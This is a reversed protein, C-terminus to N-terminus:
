DDLIIIECDFPKKLYIESYSRFIKITKLGAPLNTHKLTMNENFVNIFLEKLSFPLNNLEFELCNIIELSQLNQPLNNIIQENYKKGSIKLHELESPLKISMKSCDFTNSFLIKKISEQLNITKKVDNLITPTIKIPTFNFYIKELTTSLNNLDFELTNIIELSKINIPLNNIISENCKNGSIKLHELQRPINISIKTNDHEYSLKLKKINDPLKDISFDLKELIELSTLTKLEDYMEYFLIKNTTDGSIALKKLKKPFIFANTKYNYQSGLNIKKVNNPLFFPM